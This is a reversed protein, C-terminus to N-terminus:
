WWFPQKPMPGRKLYAEKLKKYRSHSQKISIHKINNLYNEAKWVNRSSFRWDTGCEDLHVVQYSYIEGTDDVYPEYYSLALERLTRFIPPRGHLGEERSRSVGGWKGNEKFVYIVHDLSDRSEVSMVLPPYGHIELVAASLMAAEFCHATKKKATTEASYLTNGKNYAFSRVYKQVQKPTKLRLSLSYILDAKM